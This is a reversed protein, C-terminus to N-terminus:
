SINNKWQYCFNFDLNFVLLYINRLNQKGSEIPNEITIEKYNLLKKFKVNTLSLKIYVM